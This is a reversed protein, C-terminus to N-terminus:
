RGYDRLGRELQDYARRAQKRLDAAVERHDEGALLRTFASRFVLRHTWALARAVVAPVLDSEAAGAEEAIVPSLTTAEEEWGIFLRNRLSRSGAVLRPVAVIGDVPGREVADIFDM